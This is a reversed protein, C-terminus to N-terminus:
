KLDGGDFFPFNADGWRVEVDKLIKKSLQNALEDNSSVCTVLAFLSTILLVPPFNTLYRM